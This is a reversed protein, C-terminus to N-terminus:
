FVFVRLRVSRLSDPSFEKTKNQKENEFFQNSRIPEQIRSFANVSERPNQNDGHRRM